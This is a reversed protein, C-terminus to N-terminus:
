GYMGILVVDTKKFFVTGSDGSSLSAAGEESTDSPTSVDM